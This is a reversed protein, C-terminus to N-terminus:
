VGLISDKIGNEKGNIILYASQSLNLNLEKETFYDIM